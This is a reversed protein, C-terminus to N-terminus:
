STVKDIIKQEHPLLLDYPLSEVEKPLRNKIWFEEIAKSGENNQNNEM